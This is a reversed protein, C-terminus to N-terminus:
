AAKAQAILIASQLAKKNRAANPGFWLSSLRGSESNGAEYQMYETAANYMAWATGKISQLDNGRGSEFLRIVAEEAKSARKRESEDALDFVVQVYQKLDAENVQYKALLKFQEATAQFGKEALVMAKRIETLAREANTTHTVKLLKSDAAGVAMTLTNQCVVRIPTYGVRIAMTGDHSNSLLVYSEVLDDKAIVMAERKVKALIWVRKGDNLVGATEYTISGDKVLPDFFNLAQTNQLPHYRPGVVGLTAGTDKRFTEKHTSLVGHENFLPRTGVEWDLKAGALVEETTPPTIFRQGLKHWPTEGVYIMSAQGNQGIELEHAM